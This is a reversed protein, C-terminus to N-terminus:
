VDEIHVDLVYPGPTEFMQQLASELSSITNVSVAPVRMSRALQPLDIAPNDLLVRGAVEPLPTLRV